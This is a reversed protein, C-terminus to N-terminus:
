FQAKAAALTRTMAWESDSIEIEHLYLGLPVVHQSELKDDHDFHVMEIGMDDILEKRQAM